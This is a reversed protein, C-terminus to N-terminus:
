EYLFAIENLKKRTINPVKCNDAPYGVPLLLYAKENKPRNLVEALFNMPSPTHTLTALGANHIASILMGCAIGISENVYYNQHKNGHEDIAYPKRFVVILYPAYDLFEKVSNTGLHELDEKWVESMRTNYNLREEEEALMRIKHKLAKNSVVCFSWPQKNAGSPATGATKIINYIIDVPFEEDSFYRVSRRKNMLEYFAISLKLSEEKSKKTPKYAIFKTDQGEM